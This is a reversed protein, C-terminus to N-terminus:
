RFIEKGAIRPSLRKEREKLSFLKEVGAWKSSEDIKVRVAKRNRPVWASYIIGDKIFFTL